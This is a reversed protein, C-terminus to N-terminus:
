NSLRESLNPLYESCIPCVNQVSQVSMGNDSHLIDSESALHLRTGLSLSKDSATHFAAVALSLLRPSLGPLYAQSILRPSLGPLYALSIFRSSCAIFAQSILRLYPVLSPLPHDRWYTCYISVATVPTM